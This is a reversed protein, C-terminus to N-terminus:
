TLRLKYISPIRFCLRAVTVCAFYLIYSHTIVLGSELFIVKSVAIDLLATFVIIHFFAAHSATNWAVVRLRSGNMVTLPSVSSGKTHNKEALGCSVLLDRSVQDILSCVMVFCSIYIITMEQYTSYVGIGIGIYILSNTSYHALKDFYDGFLSSTNNFRALEGDITDAVNLGVFCLGGVIYDAATGFSFFVSGLVGLFFMSLTAMNPTIPTFSVFATIPASINRTFYKYLWDNTHKEVKQNSYINKLREIYNM